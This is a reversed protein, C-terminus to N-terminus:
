KYEIDALEKIELMLQLINLDVIGLAILNQIYM